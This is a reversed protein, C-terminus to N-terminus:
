KLDRKKFICFGATILVAIEALPICVAKATLDGAEDLMQSIPCLDYICQFHASIKMFFFLPM